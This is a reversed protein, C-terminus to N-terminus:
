PSGSAPHHVAGDEGGLPIVLQDLPIRVSRVTARATPRDVDAYVQTTAVSAHGLLEQVMRLDRRHRYAETAFYHRLAHARATSGIGDLHRGIKVSITKACWGFVTPGDRELGGLAVALAPHLEIAREQDGKGRVTVSGLEVDAWALNAMECCRMGAAAGCLLLARMPADAAELAVALDGHSIPRPRRRRVKPRRLKRTPDRDVLDEDIAWKYFVALRSLVLRTTAPGIKRSALLARVDAPTALLPDAVEGLRRLEALYVRVTTAAKQEAVLHERYPGYVRSWREGGAVM